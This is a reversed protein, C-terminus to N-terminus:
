TRSEKFSDSEPKSHALKRRARQVKWQTRVPDVLRHAMQMPWYRVASRMHYRLKWRHSGEAVHEELNIVWDQVLGDTMENFQRVRRLYRRSLYYRFFSPMDVDVKSRNPVKTNKLDLDTHLDAPAVGIFDLVRGLTEEPQRKMEDFRLLLINQRGFIRSWNRLIRGYDGFADNLRQDAFRLMSDLNTGIEAVDDLYSFTWHRRLASWMRDVPHRVLLIIKVHPFLDHAM